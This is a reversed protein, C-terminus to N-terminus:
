EDANVGILSADLEDLRGDSLAVDINMVESMPFIRSPILVKKGDVQIAEKAMVVTESGLEFVAVQDYEESATVEQHIGSRYKVEVSAHGLDSALSTVLPSHLVEGVTRLVLFAGILGIGLLTPVWDVLVIALLSVGWFATSAVLGRTRRWDGVASLVPMQFVVLVLPHLVYLTGIQASDLGLTESAVVPVTAQMQAYM